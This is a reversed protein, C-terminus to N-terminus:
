LLALTGELSQLGLVTVFADPNDNVWVIQARVNAGNVSLNLIDGISLSIRGYIKICLGRESINITRAELVQGNNPFVFSIEKKIRTGGRKNRGHLGSFLIGCYPCPKFTEVASEYTDRNCM